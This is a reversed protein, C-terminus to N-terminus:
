SDGTVASPGEQGPEQPAGRGGEGGEPEWSQRGRRVRWGVGLVKDGPKGTHGTALAQGPILHICAWATPMAVSGPSPRTPVRAFCRASLVRTVRARRAKEGRAWRVERTAASGAWAQIHQSFGAGGM